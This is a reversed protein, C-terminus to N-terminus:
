LGPARGVFGAYRRPIHEDVMRLCGLAPKGVADADGDGNVAVGALIEEDDEMVEGPRDSRHRSSSVNM